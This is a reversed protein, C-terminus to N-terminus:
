NVEITSVMLEIDGQPLGMEAAIEAATHGSTVLQQVRRFQEPTAVSTTVSSPIVRSPTERVRSPTERTPAVRSPPADIGAVSSELRSLQEIRQDVQRLLTQVVVIRTDLEAKLERQLDFMAAQWRQTAAPADCLPVAPERHDRIDRIANDAVRAERFVRRRTKIQRRVLVWGLMVLGAVLMLQAQQMDAVLPAAVGQCFPISM